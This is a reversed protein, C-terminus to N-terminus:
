AIAATPRIQEAEHSDPDSLARYTAYAYEKGGGVAFRGTNANVKGAVGTWNPGKAWDIRRDALIALAVQQGAADGDYFAKGLAGLSITVPVSRLILDRDRFDHVTFRTFVQGLWTQAADELRDFDVRDAPITKGGFQVAGIGKAIAAIMLRAQLGTMVAESAAPVQRQRTELELGLSEFVRKTVEAYPDTYDAMTMLNPNVGVGKGNVDAFYKAVVKPDQIGHVIQVSVQKELLKEVETDSLREINMLLSEGRSEGDLFIGKTVIHANSDDDIEVAEPFCLTFAPLFGPAPKSSASPLWQDRMYDALPGRANAKKAGAFDRQVIAHLPKLRNVERQELPGLNAKPLFSRAPVAVELVDRVKMAAVAEHPSVEIVHLMRDIM